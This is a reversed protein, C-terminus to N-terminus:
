KMFIYKLILCCFTTSFKLKPVSESATLSFEALVEDRYKFTINGVTQNEEVPAMLNESFTCHQTIESKADKKIIFGSIDPNKISVYEKSGLMVKINPFSSTDIEPKYYCYASFGYNLLEKVGSLREDISKCGLVVAILKLGDREASASLCYGADSTYGTKLGTAGKYFRILKNTNTLETKGNRLSDTWITTYNLIKEHKLLEKSMLSIDYATSYHGDEDLGNANKFCTNVMGLERARKNMMEVFNDETGGIAEALVVAADNASNVAVAKLLDNVSMEEGVELWIESGGMSKAHESCVLVQEFTLAGKEIAEMTLLMTMIKTISAMPRMEDKNDEYLIKGSNAEILVASVANTNIVPTETDSYLVDGESTQIVTEAFCMPSFIFFVTLVAATISKKM